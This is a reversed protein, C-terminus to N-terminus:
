YAVTPKTISLGAKHHAIAKERVIWAILPLCVGFPWEQFLMIRDQLLAASFSYFAPPFCTMRLRRHLSDGSHLFCSVSLKEGCAPASIGPWGGVFLIRGHQLLPCFARGPRDCVSFDPAPM